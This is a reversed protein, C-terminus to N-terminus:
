SHLHLIAALVAIRAEVWGYSHPADVAKLLQTVVQTDQAGDALLLTGFLMISNAM